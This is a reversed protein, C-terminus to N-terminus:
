FKFKPELYSLYEFFLINFMLDRTFIENKIELDCTRFHEQINTLYFNNPRDFGWQAVENVSALIKLFNTM